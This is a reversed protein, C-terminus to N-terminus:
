WPAQRDIRERHRLRRSREWPRSATLLLVAWAVLLSPPTAPTSGCGVNASLDSVQLTVSQFPTLPTGEATTYMATLRVSDGPRTPMEATIRVTVTKGIALPPIIVTSGQQAATEGEVEAQLLTLNDTSLKLAGQPFAETGKNELKVEFDVSAGPGAVAPDEKARLSLEASPARCEAKVSLQFPESAGRNIVTGDFTPHILLPMSSTPCGELAVFATWIGPSPQSIPSIFLPSTAKFSFTKGVPPLPADCTDRLEFRVPVPQSYSTLTPEVATGLGPFSFISKQPSPMRKWSVTLDGVPEADKLLFTVDGAQRHIWTVYQTGELPGTACDGAASVSLGTANDLIATSGPPRCFSIPVREGSPRGVDDVPTLAFTMSDCTAVLKSSATVSVNPFVRIIPSVAKLSPTDQDELTLQYEGKENLIPTILKKGLDLLPDFSLTVPLQPDRTELNSSLTVRGAYGVADNGFEDVARVRVQAVSGPRLRQPVSTFELRKTLANVVSIPRSNGQLLGLVGDTATLMVRGVSSAKYYVTKSSSGPPITAVLIDNTCSDTTYFAGLPQPTQGLEVTVEVGLSIGTGSLTQTQVTFPVCPAGVKVELPTSEFGLKTDPFPVPLPVPTAAVLWPALLLLSSMRRWWSKPPNM